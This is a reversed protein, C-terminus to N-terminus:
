PVSSRGCAIRRSSTTGWTEEQEEAHDGALAELWAAFREHLDARRSKPIGQYAADRILLHRFRLEDGGRRSRAAGVLEKRTLAMLISDVDAGIPEPTLERVAAPLFEKGMVSAAEIVAREEADLRDLRASLLASITPPVSIRTLDNSSVWTGGESRLLGDDILM